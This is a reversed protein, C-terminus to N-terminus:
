VLKHKFKRTARDASRFAFQDGYLEFEIMPDQKEASSGEDAQSPAFLPISFAFVSNTKPITKLENKETVVKFTNETELIVIGCCGVLSPNKAKRVSIISGHFDAKVLKAQMGQVNPMRLTSPNISGKPRPNLGLSEAMYAKWLLHLPLFLEYRTEDKKLDWIGRVSAEKRNLTQISRKVADKLRRAKRQEELQKARSQKAPNELAIQRNQIRSAYVTSTDVGSPLLSQVYTPIFPANSSLKLRQGKLQTVQSLDRYVDTSNVATNVNTSPGAQM